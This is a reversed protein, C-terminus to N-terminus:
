CASMPSPRLACMRPRSLLMRMSDPSAWFLVAGGGRRVAAIACKAARDPSTRMLALGSWPQPTQTFSVQVGLNARNIRWKRRRYHATRGRSRVRRYNALKYQRVLHGVAAKMGRGGADACVDQTQVSQVGRRGPASRRHPGSVSRALQGYDWKRRLEPVVGARGAGGPSTLLGIWRGVRKRARTFRGTWPALYPNSWRALSWDLREWDTLFAWVRPDGRLAYAYGPTAPNGGLGNLAVIRNCPFAGTLIRAIKSWEAPSSGPFRTNVVFVDQPRIAGALGGAAQDNSAYTRANGVKNVRILMTFRIPPPGGPSLGPPAPPCAAAAAAPGAGATLAAALATLLLAFGLRYRDRM